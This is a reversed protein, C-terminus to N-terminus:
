LNDFITTTPMALFPSLYPSRYVGECRHSTQIHSKIQLNWTSICLHFYLHPYSYFQYEHQKIEDIMFCYPMCINLTQCYRSQLTSQQNLAVETLMNIRLEGPTCNFWGDSFSCRSVWIMSQKINERHRQVVASTLTLTCLLFIDVMWNCM